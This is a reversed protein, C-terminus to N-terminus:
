EDRRGVDEESMTYLDPVETEGKALFSSHIGAQVTEYVNEM